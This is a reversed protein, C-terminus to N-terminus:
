SQYQVLQPVKQDKLQTVKKTRMAGGATSLARHASAFGEAADPPGCTVLRPRMLRTYKQALPFVFGGGDDDDKVGCSDASDSLAASSLSLACALKAKNLLSVM